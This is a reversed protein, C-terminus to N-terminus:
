INLEERRKQWAEDTPAEITGLKYFIDLQYDRAGRCLSDEPKDYLAPHHCIQSSVTMCQIRVKNALRIQSEDQEHFPCTKCKKKMVPFDKICQTDTM